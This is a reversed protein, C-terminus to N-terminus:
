PQEEDIIYVVPIYKRDTRLRRRFGSPNNITQNLDDNEIRLRDIEAHLSFNESHLESYSGNCMFVLTGATILLVSLIAIVLWYWTM